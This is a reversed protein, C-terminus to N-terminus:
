ARCVHITQLSPEALRFELDLPILTAVIIVNEQLIVLNKKQQHSSHSSSELFSSPVCKNVFVNTM